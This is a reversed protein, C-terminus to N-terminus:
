SPVVPAPLTKAIRPSIEVEMATAAGPPHIPNFSQELLEYKKQMATLRYYTYALAAVAVVLAASIGILMGADDELESDTESAGVEDM